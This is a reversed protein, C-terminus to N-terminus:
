TEIPKYKGKDTIVWMDKIIPQTIKKCKNCVAHHPVFVGKIEVGNNYHVSTECCSSITGKIKTGPIM